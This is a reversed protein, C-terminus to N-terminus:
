PIGGTVIGGLIVFLAALMLGAAAGVLIWLPRSHSSKPAVPESRTVALVARKLRAMQGPTLDM